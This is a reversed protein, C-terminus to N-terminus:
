EWQSFDEISVLKFLLNLEDIDVSGDAAADLMLFKKRPDGLHKLSSASNEVFTDHVIDGNLIFSEVPYRFQQPIQM